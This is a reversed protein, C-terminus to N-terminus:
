LILRMKVFSRSVFFYNSTNYKVFPENVNNDENTILNIIPLIMENCINKLDAVKMGLFQRYAREFTRVHKSKLAHLSLYVAAAAMQSCCLCSFAPLMAVCDIVFLCGTYLKQDQVNILLFYHELFIHPEPLRLSFESYKLIKREMTKIEQESFKGELVSHVKSIRICKDGMYFKCVCWLATLAMLRPEYKKEEVCGWCKDMIYIATYFADQEIKYHQQIKLLWNVIVLRDEIALNSQCLFNKRLVHKCEIKLLHDFYNQMYSMESDSLVDPHGAGSREAFIKKVFASKFKPKTESLNGSTRQVKFNSAFGADDTAVDMKLLPTENKRKEELKQFFDVGDVFEGEGGAAGEVDREILDDMLLTKFFTQIKDDNKAAGDPSKTRPKKNAEHKEPARKEKVHVNKPLEKFATRCKPPPKKDDSSIKAEM